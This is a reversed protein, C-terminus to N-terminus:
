YIATMLKDKNVLNPHKLMLPGFKKFIEALIDLCEEQVEEKGKDQIGSLLKPHVTKIMNLASQGKLEDITSRIALSFIDRVEKKNSDVVMGSLNEVIMVLNQEKIIPAIQQISKVAMSQVDPSTDNLHKIFATCIRKELAEEMKGNESVRIVEQCLDMAAMYRNDKDHHGCENLLEMIKAQGSM